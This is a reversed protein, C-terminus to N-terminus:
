KVNIVRSMTRILDYGDWILSFDSTKGMPVIRDIGRVGSQAVMRSLEEKEMGYYSLTQVKETVVCLLEEMHASEYEFFSGGPCTYNMIEDTLTQVKIRDILNKNDHNLTVEPLAIAAKYAVLLKDVAIKPEVHYRGGLYDNIAKWFKNQAASIVDSEGYWYILRPSSCANQDYLYTDNYFDNAIREMDKEAIMEKANIILMSYRDSFAIEIARPMLASKRIEQITADGGWIVRVACMESLRDTIERKKEYTVLAIYKAIDHKKCINKQATEKLLRCLINTQLFEKSSVRVICPNGALLAAVMSYAFNIPVNSPAVHFSIGKGVRVENTYNQRLQEINAKRCFFGFTLIDSYQRSERDKRIADSLCNLFACVDEDFTGLTPLTQMEDLSDGEYFYFRMENSQKMPIAVGGLKQM